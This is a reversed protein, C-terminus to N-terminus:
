KTNIIYFSPNGDESLYEIELGYLECFEVVARAVSDVNYDHGTIWGGPKVKSRSGMLEDKTMEYEHTTDVYVCDLSDDDIWTLFDTSKMRMVHVNHTGFEFERIIEKYVVEMNDVYDQNHGDKDGCSMAGSWIDVLILNKPYCLMLERSFDGKFVGLEAIVMGPRETFFDIRTTIKKM